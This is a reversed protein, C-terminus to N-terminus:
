DRQARDYEAAAASVAARTEKIEEARSSTELEKLRAEAAALEAKRAALNSTFIQKQGQMAAEAQALVARAASEAASEREHTRMLEERSLRAIVDGKKVNQGEDTLLEAILGSTKFAVNVQTLEINGSVKIVNVDTERGPLLTLGVAIGIIVFIGILPLIRKGM